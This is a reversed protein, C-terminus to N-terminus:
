NRAPCDVQNHRRATTTLLFQNISTINVEPIKEYKNRVLHINRWHFKIDTITQIQLEFNHMQPLFDGANYMKGHNTLCDPAVRLNGVNLYAKENTL